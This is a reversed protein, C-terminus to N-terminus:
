RPEFRGPAVSGDAQVEAPVYVQDRNDEQLLVSLVVGVIQPTLYFLQFGIFVMYAALGVYQAGKVAPKTQAM